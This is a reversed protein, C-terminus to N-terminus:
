LLNVSCFLCHSSFVVVFESNTDIETCSVRTDSDPLVILDFNDSVVLTEVGGGGVNGESLFLSENSFSSLGLNGSVGLVGDEIGLSEDSSLESVSFDLSVHLEPGELDDGSLVLLGLDLNGVLTLDLFEEGLLNGGHDEDLHLVDGVLVETLVAFVSDDSDGSVEVIGLSLGSLIGTDNSSEVDLSDNVLGGSGSNGVTEVFLDLLLFGNEDEIESTTGEIDGEEGNLVTGELNLGGVTVGMETTFIEIVVKDVEAHLFEELLGLNIDLVVHSGESSESGLTFLGLSSEGSGMLGLNLDLGELTSFIERESEGSSLELFEALSIELFTHGWNLVDELIGLAGLGLNVLDDKNSSRGSDGLDLVHEGVEEVSLGEVLGDVRILGDSVTGGDLGGNEVSVLGGSDLVHEEEIDRGKGLTDLGDSTDHTNNDGSVGGDGGFLALDEGSIGVVLGSDLDLNVFTLSTHNLIVVHETLEHKVSDWWSGSTDGLNLDGEVNIGVTDEVNGSAILGGAFGTGDGDGVVLASEGLFLDLLENGIGLSVLSLIVLHLVADLHLGAELRVAVLHSLLKIVLLHASVEGLLVLGEDVSVGVLDEHPESRSSGFLSGRVLKRSFLSVELGLEVGNHHSNVLGTAHGSL